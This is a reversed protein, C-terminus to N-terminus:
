AHVLNPDPLGCLGELSLLLKAVAKAVKSDGGRLSVEEEQAQAFGGRRCLELAGWSDGPCDPFLEQRTRM